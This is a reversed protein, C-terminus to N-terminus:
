HPMATALIPEKEHSFCQNEIQELVVPSLPHVSLRPSASAPLSPLTPFSTLRPSVGLNSIDFPRPLFCSIHVFVASVRGRGGERRYAFLFGHSLRCLLLKLVPFLIDVVSALDAEAM